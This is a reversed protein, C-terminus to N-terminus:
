KSSYLECTPLLHLHQYILEEFTLMLFCLLLLQQILPLLELKVHMDPLLVHWLLNVLGM